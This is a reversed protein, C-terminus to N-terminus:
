GIPNVCHLGNPLTRRVELEATPPVFAAPAGAAFRSGLQM